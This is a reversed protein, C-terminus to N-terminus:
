CHARGFLFLDIINKFYMPWLAETNIPNEKKKIYTHSSNDEEDPWWNVSIVEDISM